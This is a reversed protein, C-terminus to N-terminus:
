GVWEVEVLRKGEWRCVVIGVNEVGIVRSRFGLWVEWGGIGKSRAKTNEERGRWWVERM